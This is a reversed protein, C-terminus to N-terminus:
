APKRAYAEFLDGITFPVLVGTLHEIVDWMVVADFSESGFPVADLMGHRLELGHLERAKEVAWSSPEVGEVRWGGAKALSLFVGTYAGVELMDGPDVFRSLTALQRGFTALRGREEAVYTLDVM